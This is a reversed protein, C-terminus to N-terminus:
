LFFLCFVHCQGASHPQCWLRCLELGFSQVASCLAFNKNYQMMLERVQVKQEEVSVQSFTAVLKSMNEQVASPSLKPRLSFASFTHTVAYEGWETKAQAVARQFWSRM